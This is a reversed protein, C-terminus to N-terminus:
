DAFIDERNMVQCFMEQAASKQEAKKAVIAQAIALALPFDYSLSTMSSRTKFSFQPNEFLVNLTEIVLDHDGECIDLFRQAQAMDRRYQPTKKSIHFPVQMGQARSTQKSVLAEFHNLVSQTPAGISTRYYYGNHLEIEEGCNPCAGSKRKTFERKCAPCLPM